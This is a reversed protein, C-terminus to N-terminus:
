RGVISRLDDVQEPHGPVILVDGPTIREEPGPNHVLRDESGDRARAALTLDSNRDRASLCVFLNDTDAGLAAVLGRAEGIDAEELTIDAEELTEDRPADSELVVFLFRRIFL